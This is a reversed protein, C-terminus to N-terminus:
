ITERRFVTPTVGVFKLFVRNLQAADSFGVALAVDAVSLDRKSLLEKAVSIREALVYQYPSLGVSHKFARIFHFQSLGALNALESVGVGRSINADLFERIRSLQLGTLGGRVTKLPSYKPDAAHRLEWLLLLGLTEAYAQDDIGSGDLVSRLKVLTAKLNSNEFYLSPPIDSIDNAYHDSTSPALHVAFAQSVRGKLCNWGEVSSGIPVFTLRDRADTITSRSGGNVRTEGDSRVFDHLALYNAEGKVRFELETPQIRVTEASFWSWSMRKVLFPHNADPHRQHWEIKANPGLSIGRLSESKECRVHRYNSRFM